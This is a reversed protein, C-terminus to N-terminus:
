RTHHTHFRCEAKQNTDPCPKWVHRSFAFSASLAKAGANNRGSFGRDRNGRRPVVSTTGRYSGRRFVHGSVFGTSPMSQRNM